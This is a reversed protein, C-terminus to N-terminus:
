VAGGPLRVARRDDIRRMPREFGGRSSDQHKELGMRVGAGAAQLPSGSGRTAHFAATRRFFQFAGQKVAGVNERANPLNRRSQGLPEAIPQDYVFQGVVAGGVVFCIWALLSGQIDCAIAM